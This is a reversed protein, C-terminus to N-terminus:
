RRFLRNALGQPKAKTAPSPPLGPKVESFELEYDAQWRIHLTYDQPTRCFLAMAMPTVVAGGVVDAGYKLNMDAIDNFTFALEQYSFHYGSKPPEEAEAALRGTVEFDGVTSNTGHLLDYGTFYGGYPGGVEGHFKAYFEEQLSHTKLDAERTRAFEAAHRALSREVHPDLERAARMYEAWERANAAAERSNDGRLEDISVENGTGRLWHDFIQWGFKDMRAKLTLYLAWYNEYLAPNLLATPVGCTLGQKFSTGPSGFDGGPTSGRTGPPKSPQRIMTGDDVEQLNTPGGLPGCNGYDEYTPIPM